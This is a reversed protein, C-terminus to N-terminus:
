KQKPLQRAFNESMCQIVKETNADNNATAEATADDIRQEITMQEKDKAIKAELAELQQVYPTITEDNLM